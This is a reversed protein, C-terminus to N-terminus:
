YDVGKRYESVPVERFNQPDNRVMSEAFGQDVTGRSGGSSQVVTTDNLYHTFGATSRDISDQVARAHDMSANFVATNRAITASAIAQGRAILANNERITQGVQQERVGQDIRYSNFIALLTPFMRNFRAVPASVMKVELMWVGGTQLPAWGATGVFHVRTGKVTTSGSMQAFQFRGNPPLSRQQEITTQPDPQQQLEALRKSAAVYADAPSSPLPLVIGFPTVASVPQHMMQQANAYQALAPSRPDVFTLSVEQDVEDGAADSATFVGQAFHQPTWGDPLQASASHDPAVVDHMPPVGASTAPATAHAPTANATAFAILGPATTAFRDARDYILAIRSPGGKVYTGLVMGSISGSAPRARFLAVVLTGDTSRVAGRVDIPADFTAHARGLADRLLAQPSSETRYATLLTGGGPAQATTMGSPASALAPAAILGAFAAGALIMM